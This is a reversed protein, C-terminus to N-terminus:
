RHLEPLVRRDIGQGRKEGPGFGFGFGLRQHRRSRPDISSGIATMPRPQRKGPSICLGSDNHCNRHSPRDATASTGGSRHAGKSSPEGSTAAASDRVVRHPRKQIVDVGEVRFKELDHRALRGLHIRLLAKAPLPTPPKPARRSAVSNEAGNAFQLRRRLRRLHTHTGPTWRDALRRRTSSVGTTRQTDNRIPKRIEQVQTPGRDRHISGTRRRQDRHMEGALAQSRTIRVEGDGCTHIQQQRRRNKTPKILCARQRRRTAAVCEIRARITEHATLAATDRHELTQAIRQTVPVSHQSHHATRRDILVAPGIPQHSRVGSSLHRHQARGIGIGTHRRMLHVIDLRVSGARQKTIGDLRTRESCHQTTPSRLLRRQHDPRDLRIQTMQLRRGPDRTENLRHQRHLPRADRSIQM